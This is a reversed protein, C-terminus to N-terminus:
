QNDLEVVTPFTLDNLTDNNESLENGSLPLFNWAYYCLTEAAELFVRMTGQETTFNRM